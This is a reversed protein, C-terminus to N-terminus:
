VSQAVGAGSTPLYICGTSIARSSCVNKGSPNPLRQVNIAGVIHLTLIPQCECPTQQKAAIITTHRPTHPPPDCEAIKIAGLSLLNLKNRRQIKYYKIETVVM